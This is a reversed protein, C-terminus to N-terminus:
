GLISRVSSMRDRGGVKFINNIQDILVTEEGDVIERYRYISYDVSEDRTSGTEAKGGTLKTAFGSAFIKTGEAILEGSSLRVDTAIRVEIDAKGQTFLFRKSTGGRRMSIAMTMANVQGASPINVSGMIGAGKYETTPIEIDSISVSVADPVEQGNVRVNFAATGGSIVM